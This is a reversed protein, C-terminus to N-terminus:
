GRGQVQTVVLGDYDPYEGAGPDTDGPSAAALLIEKGAPM